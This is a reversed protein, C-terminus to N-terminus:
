VALYEQRKFSKDIVRFLSRVKACLYRARECARNDDRLSKGIGVKACLDWGRM